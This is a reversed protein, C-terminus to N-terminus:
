PGPVPDIGHNVVLNYDLYQTVRGTRSNEPPPVVTDKGLLPSCVATSNSSLMWWRSSPNQAHEFAPLM